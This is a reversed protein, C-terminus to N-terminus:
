SEIPNGDRLAENEIIIGVSERKYNFVTIMAVSGDLPAAPSAGTGDGGDMPSLFELFSDLFSM